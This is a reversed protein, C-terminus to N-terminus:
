RDQEIERELSRIRRDTRFLFALISIWIILVVALVVLIKGDATMTKELGQPEKTPIDSETTWATDFAAEDERITRGTDSESVTDQQAPDPSADIRAFPLTHPVASAPLPHITM